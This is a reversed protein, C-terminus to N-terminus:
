KSSLWRKLSQTIAVLVLASLAVMGIAYLDSRRYVVSAIISGAIILMLATTPKDANRMGGM